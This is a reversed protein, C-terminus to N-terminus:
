SGYTKTAPKIADGLAEIRSVAYAGVLGGVLAGVGAGIATSKGKRTAAYTGGAALLGGVAAGGLIGRAYM